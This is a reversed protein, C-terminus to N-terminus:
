NEFNDGKFISLIAGSAMLSLNDYNNNKFIIENEFVDEGGLTKATRCFSVTASEGMVGSLTVTDCFRMGCLIIQSFNQKIRKLVSKNESNLIITNANKFMSFDFTNDTEGCVLIYNEATIKKFEANEILLIKTNEGSKLLRNGSVLMCATKTKLIEFIEKGFNKKHRDNLILVEVM